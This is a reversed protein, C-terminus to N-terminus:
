IFNITIKMIILIILITYIISEFIGGVKFLGKINLINFPYFLIIGEKSIMDLIIHSVLGILIPILYFPVFLYALLSVGIIFFISHFLKRHGFLIHIIISIPKLKRGLISNPHDIDPILGALGIAVFFILKNGSFRFSDLYFIGLLIAFLLHTKGRM